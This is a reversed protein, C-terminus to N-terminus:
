WRGTGFEAAPSAFLYGQLLDCGLAVLIDREEAIEVGEAVLEAGMDACLGVLMWVMKRRVPDLHLSRVLSMDLKVVEPQLHAMASLGAYGAGLDDVALRFGLARLRRLREELGDIAELASRETIELVVSSAFRSLPADADFLEPDLLDRSHLNVFILGPDQLESLKRAVRSRVTRGLRPLADLREAADLLSSPTPFRADSSRMLAEHSFISRSSWRVIPQWDMQLGALARDLARARRPADGDDLSALARAVADELVDAAVPKVLYQEARHEVARIAGAVEPRATVLIVPLQRHLQRIKELLCLGDMKPMAIDSVVLDVHGGMVLRLADVGDEAVVVTYGARQLVRTHVRRAVIDDDVVLIHGLRGQQLLRTGAPDEGNAM